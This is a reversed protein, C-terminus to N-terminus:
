FERYWIEWWKWGDEEEENKSKIGNVGHILPGDCWSTVTKQHGHM